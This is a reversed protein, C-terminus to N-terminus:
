TPGPSVPCLYDAKIWGNNGRGDRVNRWVEGGTDRDPGVIDLKTGDPWAQIGTGKPEARVYAGMGGTNCIAVVTAPPTPAVTATPRPTPTRVPTSSAAPPPTPTPRAAPACAILLISLLGVLLPRM